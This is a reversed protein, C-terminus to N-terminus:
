RMKRLVKEIETVRHSLGGALPDDFTKPINGSATRDKWSEFGAKSKSEVM